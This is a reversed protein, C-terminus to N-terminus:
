PDPLPSSLRNPSIKKGHEQSIESDYPIEIERLVDRRIERYHLDNYYSTVRTVIVKRVRQRDPLM